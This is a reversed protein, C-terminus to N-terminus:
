KQVLEKAPASVFARWLPESNPHASSRQVQRGGERLCGEHGSERSEGDWFAEGGGGHERLEGCNQLRCPSCLMLLAHGLM